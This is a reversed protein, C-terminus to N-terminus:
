RRSFRCVINLLVYGDLGFLNTSVRGVRTKILLAQMKQLLGFKTVAIVLRVSGNVTSFMALPPFLAGM